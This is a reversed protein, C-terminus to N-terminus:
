ARSTAPGIGAHEGEPATPWPRALRRRFGGLAATTRSRSRPRLCAPAVRHRGLRLRKATLLLRTLAQVALRPNCAAAGPGFRVFGLPYAPMASRGDMRAHSTIRAPLSRREGSGLGGSAWDPSGPAPAWTRARGEGYPGLVMLGNRCLQTRVCCRPVFGAIRMASARVDGVLRAGSGRRSPRTLPTCPTAPAPPLATGARCGGWSFALSGPPVPWPASFAGPWAQGHHIATM